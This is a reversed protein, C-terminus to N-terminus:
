DVALRRRLWAQALAFDLVGIGVGVAVVVGFTTLSAVAVVVVTAAVWALDLATILATATRLSGRARGAVLAVDVAFVILGAAVVAVVWAAPV